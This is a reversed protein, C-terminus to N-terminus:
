NMANLWQRIIQVTEDPHKEVMGNIKNYSSSKLKGQIRDINIMDEEAESEGDAAAAAAMASRSQDTLRAAISPAALAAQDVEEEKGAHEAAEIARAVLPRVVLLIALIAVGGLVMTQIISTLDRKLWDMPSEAFLDEANQAFPMNIVKVDDGRASDYGIASQVLEEIKKLEEPSRPAYQQKDGEGTYVGDVLVAVSLRKVNGTEKVSNIIEKSIEFNTTEETRNRDQNSGTAGAAGGQPNPLNSAVSVSGDSSSENSKDSESVSQVSRAVQGEPDYKEQNKVTRDFDIDAHVEAKVKGIGVSQELLREITSRLRNEYGTRFDEAQESVANPDNEEDTSKALLAGRSDVITVHQAKLGPVASAILNRIAAIENKNLNTTGRLKVAVSATPMASDRTFLERKPMVLHVRANDVTDFSSITRALEGELARLQNLNLVFNSTGLTDGKDFIEYGVISGSSPLGMQAMELRIKDVMDAPVLIQTGNARLEYKIGKADLEQVIKAGDELPVSTFIPAMTPATMRLSIFAFFGIMLVATGIMAALKIQSLDRLSQVMANM